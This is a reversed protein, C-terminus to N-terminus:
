VAGSAEGTSPLAAVAGVAVEEVVEEGVRETAGLPSKISKNLSLKLRAELESHPV